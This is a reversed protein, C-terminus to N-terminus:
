GWDFNNCNRVWPYGGPIDSVRKLSKQIYINRETELVAESTDIKCISFAEVEFKHITQFVAKLLFRLIDFYTTVRLSNSFIMTFM